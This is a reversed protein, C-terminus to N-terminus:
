IYKSVSEFSKKCIIVDSSWQNETNDKCVCVCVCVCVKDVNVDLCVEKGTQLLIGAKKMANINEGLFNFGFATWNQGNRIRKSKGSVM